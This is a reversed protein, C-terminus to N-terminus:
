IRYAGPDDPLKSYTAWDRNHEVFWEAYKELSNDFDQGSADRLLQINIKLSKLREEEQELNKSEQQMLTACHEILLRVFESSVDLNMLDM